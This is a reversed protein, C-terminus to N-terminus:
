LIKELLRPVTTFYNPKIEKLNDGVKIWVRRMIFQVGIKLYFYVATREFIHCIPLFSIIRHNNNMPMIKCLSNVDSLINNHSLM